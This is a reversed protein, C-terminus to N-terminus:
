TRISSIIKGAMPPIKQELKFDPKPFKLSVNM